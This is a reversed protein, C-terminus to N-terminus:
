ISAHHRPAGASSCAWLLDFEKPALAIPQGAKLVERSGPDVDVSGFSRRRAKSHTRTSRRLLAEVRAMLELVSFPKTVYDDAGFRFGRVKDIEEGRASLILVPTDNGSERLSRLVRYGDMDPLMLDLIVLDPAWGSAESLGQHGDPAVRVEYGEIELNNELGYALNHNDEVILVRKLGSKEQEAEAVEEAPQGSARALEVIFVAGGGDADEVWVRGGMADVLEKVVALGVGTGAVGSNRHRRLREFRQWIRQRDSAGVGEGQDRVSM